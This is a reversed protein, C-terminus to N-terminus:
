ANYNHEASSLVIELIHRVQQQDKRSYVCSSLFQKISNLIMRPLGIKNLIEQKRFYVQMARSFVLIFLNIKARFNIAFYM